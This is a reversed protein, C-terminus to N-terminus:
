HLSLSLSRKSVMGIRSVKPLTLTVKTQKGSPQEWGIATLSNM